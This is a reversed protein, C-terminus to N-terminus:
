QRSFLDQKKRYAMAAGEGVTECELLGLKILYKINNYIEARTVDSKIKLLIDESTRWRGDKMITAIVQSLSKDSASRGAEGNLIKQRYDNIMAQENMAGAGYAMQPAEKHQHNRGYDEERVSPTKRSQLM